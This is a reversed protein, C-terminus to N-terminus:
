DITKWLGGFLWLLMILLFPTYTHYPINLVDGFGGRDEWREDWSREGKGMSGAKWFYFTGQEHRRAGVYM